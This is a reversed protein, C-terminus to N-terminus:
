PSTKDNLKPKYLTMLIMDGETEAAEDLEDNPSLDDDLKSM